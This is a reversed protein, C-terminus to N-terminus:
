DKMWYSGFGGFRLTLGFGFESLLDNDVGFRTDDIGSVFRYNATAAVRFFSFFNLEIGVEPTIAFLRDEVREIQEGPLGGNTVARYKVEGWGIRLASFPHIAKNQLPTYGFWLGGHGLDMKRLVLDPRDPPFYDSFSVTGIGYGGFFFDDLIVAGGGGASANSTNGPANFEFLPGGFGGKRTAQGFITEDQAQMSLTTFVLLFAILYKMILCIKTKIKFLFCNSFRTTEARNKRYFIRFVRWSLARYEATVQNGKKKKSQNLFLVKAEIHDRRSRAM